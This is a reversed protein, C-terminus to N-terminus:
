RGANRSCRFAILAEIDDPRFEVSFRPIDSYRAKSYGVGFGPVRVQRFINKEASEDSSIREVIKALIFSGVINTGNSLDSQM